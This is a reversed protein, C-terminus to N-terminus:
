YDVQDLCNSYPMERDTNNLGALEEYYPQRSHPLVCGYVILTNTILPKYVLVDRTILYRFLRPDGCVTGNTNCGVYIVIHTVLLDILGPLERNSPWALHTVTPKFERVTELAKGFYMAHTLIDSRATPDQDIGIISEPHMGLLITSRECDGCGLDVVRQNLIYPKIVKKFAPPFTGYM